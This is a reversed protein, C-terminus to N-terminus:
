AKHLVDVVFRSYSSMCFGPLLSLWLIPSISTTCDVLRSSPHPPRSCLRWKRAAPPLNRATATIRRDRAYGRLFACAAGWERQEATNGPLHAARQDGRSRKGVCARPGLVLICTQPSICGLVGWARGNGGAIKLGQWPRKKKKVKVRHSRVSLSVLSGGDVM